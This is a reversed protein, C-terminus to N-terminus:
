GLAHHRLQMERQHHRDVRFQQHQVLWGKPQVDQIALLKIIGQQIIIEIAAARDQHRSMLHFLHLVHQGVDHEDIASADYEIAAHVIELRSIQFHYHM